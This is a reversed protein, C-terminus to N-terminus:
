RGELCEEILEVINETSHGLDKPLYRERFSDMAELPYEGEKILSVVDTPNDFACGPMEKFFDINVGNEELYRDNDPMYFIVKKKLAAGELALSSYDTIIYDAVRLLEFVDADSFNTEDESMPVEQRPHWHIIFRYGLKEVGEKLEGPYEVPYTRFTPAFLVIREERLNPYKEYVDEETLELMKDIRPLGYNRIKEEGIDFAECYYPNWAEGGAIVYDYNRHMNLTEALVESRGSKKGVTQYGSQKIKGIAHWIQIVKLSKKHNLISVTPWYGDLICVKSTALLGMSRLMAVAFGPLGDKRGAYRYCIARQEVDPRKEALKEMILAFDTGPSDSQRSLFCVREKEPLLKLVEYGVKLGGVALTLAIKYNM